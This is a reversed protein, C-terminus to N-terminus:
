ALQHFAPKVEPPIAPRYPRAQTRKRFEALALDLADGHLLLNLGAQALVRAAALMGAHGIGMGAQATFQWSHGPTGLAACTTTFQATPCCWSVDGVDTSGRPPLDERMTVVTDNLVQARLLDKSEEDLPLEDIIGPKQGPPFSEAVRRAFDLEAEGFRPVGAVAMAEELVKELARNPLLNYIGDLLEVEYTTDTMLAAGEACKLVREYVEEVQHREPARVYYWVSARAPVVNPQLGGDRIVYHVRAKEPIHERLYNVGVNMLEVADLASRGLHPAGSAHSARGHFTVNMSNLALSSGTRVLNMAGPHWTLCADLGRFLGDRAMFAKGSFNEEAPCGFYKLTGSLGREEMEQKLAIVAGLAGVGLLNHGCGHGPGEPVLEERVPSVRQSVGPLADYEGLFGIAPRGEGWTAVFATPMGAVGREVRFGATELEDALLGASRDEHLGLEAFQWIRDSLETLRDRSGEIWVFAREARDM